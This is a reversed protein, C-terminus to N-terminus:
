FAEIGLNASSSCPYCRTTYAAEAQRRAMEQQARAQRRASRRGFIGSVLSGAASLGALALPGM